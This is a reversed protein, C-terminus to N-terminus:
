EMKWEMISHHVFLFSIVRNISYIKNHSSIHLQTPANKVEYESKGWKLPFFPIPISIRKLSTSDYTIEEVVFCLPPPRRESSLIMLHQKTSDLRRNRDEVFCYFLRFTFSQIKKTKTQIRLQSLGISLNIITSKKIPKTAKQEEIGIIIIVSTISEGRNRKAKQLQPNGQNKLWHKIHKIKIWKSQKIMKHPHKDNEGPQFLNTRSDQDYDEFEFRKGLFVRGRIKLLMNQVIKASIQKYSSDECIRKRVFNAGSLYNLIQLFDEGIRNQGLKARSIEISGEKFIFDIHLVDDEYIDYIPDGYIERYIEHNEERVVFPSEDLISYISISVM